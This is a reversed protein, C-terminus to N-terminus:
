CTRAPAWLDGTETNGYEHMSLYHSVGRRFEDATFVGKELLLERIAM